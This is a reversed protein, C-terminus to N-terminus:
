IKWIKTSCFAMQEQREAIEAIGFEHYKKLPDNLPLTSKDYMKRKQTFFNNASKRNYEDYLLTLNGLRNVCEDLAIGRKALFTQWEQNPKKPIIHELNVSSVDAGKEREGKQKLMYNTIKLLIYKALRSNTVEKTRFSDVFVEDNPTLAALRDKLDDMDLDGSRIKPALESFRSEMETPNLGCITTYRFTLNINCVLAEKFKRRDSTYFKDYLALLIIQVQEARLINLERVLEEIEKDVWFESSPSILNGYVNSALTLMRVFDKAEKSTNVKAKIQRYLEERRVLGYKSCWFHRLFSTVRTDGVNDVIEKWNMSLEDLNSESLSFLYNKLLDSISLELGRDNLTEFILHASVDNKAFIQIVVLKNLVINTINKAFDVRKGIEHNINNKFTDYAKKMLKHSSYRAPPIPTNTIISEFFAKDERNMELKLSQTLEVESKLFLLDNILAARETNESKKTNKLVDRLAVLFILITALRQQGDLIKTKGRQEHPTFVMTGFFHEEPEGLGTREYTSILDAWFEYVEDDGWSYSRQFVPVSFVSGSKLLERMTIPVSQYESM